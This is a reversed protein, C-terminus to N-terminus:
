SGRALMPLQAQLQDQQRVHAVNAAADVIVSGCPQVFVAAVVAVGALPVDGDLVRGRIEEASTFAGGWVAFAGLLLVVVVIGVTARFAPTPNNSQEDHAM